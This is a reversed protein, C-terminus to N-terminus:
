RVTSPSPPPHVTSENIRQNAVQPPLQVASGQVTSGRAAPTLGDFRQVTSEPPFALPINVTGAKNFEWGGGPLCTEPSHISEGKRQTEYYATYFNVARADKVYDVIVYDSLDLDKVLKEEMV